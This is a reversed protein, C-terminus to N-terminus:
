YKCNRNPCQLTRHGAFPNLVYLHHVWSGRIRRVIGIGINYLRKSTMCLHYASWDDFSLSAFAMELIIFWVETPLHITALEEM